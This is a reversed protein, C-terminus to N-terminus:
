PHGAAPLKHGAVPGPTQAFAMAIDVDVAFCPWIGLRLTTARPQGAWALDVTFAERYRTALEREAEGGDRIALVKGKIQVTRHTPIHSITLAIRPNERLNAISVAGTTAPLLVTLQSAGPWIRLGVARVCDPQLKASCTGVLLSKGGQTFEVLEDPLPPYSPLL